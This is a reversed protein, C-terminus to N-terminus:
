KLLTNIFCTSAAEEKNAYVLILSLTKSSIIGNVTIRDGQDLSLLDSPDDSLYQVCGDLVVYPTGLITEGISTVKGTIAHRQGKYMSDARLENNNYESCLSKAEMAIAKGSVVLGVLLVLMIILRKM